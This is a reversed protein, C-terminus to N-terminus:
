LMWFAVMWSKEAVPEPLRPLDFPGTLPSAANDDDDYHNVVLSNKAVLFCKESANLSMITTM